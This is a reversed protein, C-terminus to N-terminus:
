LNEHQPGSQVTESAAPIWPKSEVHAIELPEDWEPNCLLVRTRLTGDREKAALVVVSEWMQERGDRLIRQGVTVFVRQANAGFSGAGGADCKVQFPREIQDRSYM